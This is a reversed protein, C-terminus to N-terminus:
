CCLLLLLLTFGKGEKSIGEWALEGLNNLDQVAQSQTQLLVMMLVFMGTHVALVALSICTAHVKYRKVSRTVQAPHPPHVSPPHPSNAPRNTLKYRKVCLTPSRPIPPPPPCWPPLM